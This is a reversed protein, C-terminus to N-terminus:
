CWVVVMEKGVEWPMLGLGAERWQQACAWDGAGEVKGPSGKSHNGRRAPRDGILSHTLWGLGRLLGEGIANPFCNLKFYAM